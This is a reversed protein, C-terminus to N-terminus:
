RLLYRALAGVGILNQFSFVDVASKQLADANHKFVIKEFVKWLLSKSIILVYFYIVLCLLM